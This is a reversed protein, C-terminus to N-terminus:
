CCRECEHQVDEVCHFGSQLKYEKSIKVKMTLGSLAIELRDGNGVGTVSRVTLIMGLIGLRDSPNEKASMLLARFICGTLTDKRFVTRSM